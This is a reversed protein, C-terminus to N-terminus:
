PAGFLCKEINGSCQMVDDSIKQWQNSTKDPILNQKVLFIDLYSEDAQEGSYYCHGSAESANQIWEALSFTSVSKRFDDLRDESLPTGNDIDLAQWGNFINEKLQSVTPCTEAHISYSFILTSIILIFKKLM